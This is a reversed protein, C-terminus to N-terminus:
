LPDLPLKIGVDEEKSATLLDESLLRVIVASASEYIRKKTENKFNM